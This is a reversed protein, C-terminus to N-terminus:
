SKAVGHVTTWPIWWVLISSHIVKGKELPDEWGLLPVVTEPMTPPNKVLQAIADIQHKIKDQYSFSFLPFQLNLLTYIAFSFNYKIHCINGTVIINIVKVPKILFFFDLYDVRRFYCNWLISAKTNLIKFLHWYCVAKTLLRGSLKHVAWSVISFHNNVSAM